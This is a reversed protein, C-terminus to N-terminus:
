SDRPSPSTYLLCTRNPHSSHLEQADAFDVVTVLYTDGRVGQASYLEAPYILGQQSEYTTERIVPEAPFNISYAASRDLYEIWGQSYSLCPLFLTVTLFRKTM